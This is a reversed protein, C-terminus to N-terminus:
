MILVVSILTKSFSIAVWDLIRAQLIRHVSSGPPSCGMHDGLTLCSQTVSVEHPNGFSGCCEADEGAASSLEPHETNESMSAITLM